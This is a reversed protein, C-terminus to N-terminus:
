RNFFLSIMYAAAFTGTWNGFLDILTSARGAVGAPYFETATGVGLVLIVAILLAYKARIFISLGIFLVIVLSAMLGAHGIAGHLDSRGFFSAIHHMILGRGPLMTLALVVMLWFLMGFGSVLMKAQKLM